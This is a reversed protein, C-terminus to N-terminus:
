YTEILSSIIHLCGYAINDACDNNISTKRIQQTDYICVINAEIESKIENCDRYVLLWRVNM